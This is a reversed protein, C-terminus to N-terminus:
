IGAPTPCTCAVNPQATDGPSPMSELSSKRIASWRSSSRLRPPLRGRPGIRSVCILCRVAYRRSVYTSAAEVVPITLSPGHRDGAPGIRLLVLIAAVAETTVDEVALLRVRRLGRLVQLRGALAREAVEDARVLPDEQCQEAHHRDGHE